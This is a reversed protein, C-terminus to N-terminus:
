KKEGKESPGGDVKELESLEYTANEGGAFAMLVRRYSEHSGAIETM